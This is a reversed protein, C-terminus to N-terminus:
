LAGPAGPRPLGLYGRHIIWISALVGMICWPHLGAMYIGISYDKLLVFAWISLGVAAGAMRYIRARDITLANLVLGTFSLSAALFFPMALVASPLPVDSLAVFQVRHRPISLLMVAYLFKVFTLASELMRGHGLFVAIKHATQAIM